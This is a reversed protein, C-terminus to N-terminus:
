SYIVDKRATAVFQMQFQYRDETGPDQEFRASQIAVDYVSGGTITNGTVTNTLAVGHDDVHNQNTEAAVNYAPYNADGIELQLNATQNTAVAEGIWQYVAEELKNKYPVYYTETHTTYSSASSAWAWYKRTVSVSEMHQYNATTNSTEGGVTDVIGSISISPRVIGLDFLEPSEQPIPIQIPTKQFQIVVSDCKLAYRTITSGGRGDGDSTKHMGNRLLVAISM